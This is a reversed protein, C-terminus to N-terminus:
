FPMDKLDDTSDYDDPYPCDKYHPDWTPPKPSQITGKTIDGQKAAKIADLFSTVSDSCKANGVVEDFPQGNIFCLSTPLGTPLCTVLKSKPDTATFELPGLDQQTREWAASRQICRLQLSQCMLDFHTHWVSDPIRHETAEQSLVSIYVGPKGNYPTAIFAEIDSTSIEDAILRGNPLLRTRAISLLTGDATAYVACISHILKNM